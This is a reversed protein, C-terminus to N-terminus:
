LESLSLEGNGDFDISDFIQRTKDLNVNLKM